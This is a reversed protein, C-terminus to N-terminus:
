PGSMIRLGLSRGPKKMAQKMGSCRLKMKYKDKLFPMWSFTKLLGYHPNDPWGYELDSHLFLIIRALYRRSEKDLRHRGGLKYEELDGYFNWVEGYAMAFGEDDLCNPIAMEFQDNTIRGSVLRRILLALRDRAEREVM